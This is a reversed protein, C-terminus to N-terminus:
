ILEQLEEDSYTNLEINYWEPFHLDLFEVIGSYDNQNNLAMIYDYVKEDNEFSTMFNDKYGLDNLLNEVFKEKIKKTVRM